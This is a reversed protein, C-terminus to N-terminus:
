CRSGSRPASRCCWRARRHGGRRGRARTIILMIIFILALSAIGAILLDYTRQRRAHGQLRRPAPWISRRVRWRRARSPKRPPRRSRTSTRSARPPRRIARTASSSACRHGDPSIFNKMGRKFDANDFIEPPLYFSDDNKSADFAEGMASSNTRCRREAPGAPGEPDSYMTLMMTKMAKMDAIMPPVPGGAAADARDLHELNTVLGRSTDTLRTSATSPTSSRGSRGASPSTTATRSGTSTAASRGSSTTSTPSTTACVKLDITMDHMKKVMVHMDNTMQATISQMKSMSNITTQMRRGPHLMDAFQDQQYKQNMQQTTGQMSILFPISTHEIPTGEPRTIAQVRGIGPMHFIAKAIKDIVLFDASNRLDHDSEIMLLEPNMRAQSFHRDAAAYGVNAPLDTPLYNRDNYNTRYGPLTLLGVLALGITVVLIPGPWRM